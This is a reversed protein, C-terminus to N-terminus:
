EEGIVPEIYEVGDESLHQGHELISPVDIALALIRMACAQDLIGLLGVEELGVRYNVALLETANAMLNDISVVASEVFGKFARRAIGDAKEFEPRIVFQVAPKGDTMVRRMVKPLNAVHSMTKADWRHIMPIRWISGDAMTSEYGSIAVERVLDEPRPALTEIGVWFKEGEIWQQKGPVFEPPAAGVAVVCGSGAPGADVQTVSWERLEGGHFTFRDLVGLDAMLRPNMGPLKPFYYLFRRMNM